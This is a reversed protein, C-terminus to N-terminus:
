DKNTRSLLGILIEVLFVIMLIPTLLWMIFLVLYHQTLSMAKLGFTKDLYQVTWIGILYVIGLVIIWFNSM